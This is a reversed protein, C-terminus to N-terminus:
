DIPVDSVVGLRTCKCVAQCCCVEEELAQVNPIILLGLLLLLTTSLLAKKMTGERKNLQHGNAGSNFFLLSYKINGKVVNRFGTL